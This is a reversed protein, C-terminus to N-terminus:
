KPTAPAEATLGTRGELVQLATEAVWETSIGTMCRHDTRCVPKQCPGCDVDIRLVQGKEYPGVSYEPKTPGMICVTPVGFAVAVHRAGSDNCILLDLQSVTAKLDAITSEGDHCEVLESHAHGMVALRLASEGPGTLLVCTAGARDALADSVEAFREPLWRKSGGFAAGPAIGVIPGETQLRGKISAVVAPDAALELGEGDDECGLGTVLGLYEQAMYVPAIRGSERYPAVAHTLLASRWGRKYGIRTKAGTLWALMAARFSHPFVVAVDRAYPKLAKSLAPLAWLGPRPPIVIRNQIWPLGALLECAGARGAVTMEADPHQARLARLAPTCM